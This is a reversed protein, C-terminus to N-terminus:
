KVTVKPIESWRTTYRPSQQERASQVKGDGQIGFLVTGPGYTRTLSDIACSLRESRADADADRFLSRTHGDKQIIRTFVVGAKKYGFRPNFFTRVADAAAM